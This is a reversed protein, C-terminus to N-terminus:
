LLRRLFSGDLIRKHKEHEKNTNSTNNKVPISLTFGRMPQWNMAANICYKKSAVKKQLTNFTPNQVVIKHFNKSTLLLLSLNMIWNLKNAHPLNKDGLNKNTKKHFTSSVFLTATNQVNDIM